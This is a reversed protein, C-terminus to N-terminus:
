VKFAFSPQTKRLCLHIRWGEGWKFEAYHCCRGSIQSYPISLFVSSYQTDPDCLRWGKKGGQGPTLCLLRHAGVWRGKMIMWHFLIFTNTTVRYKYKCCYLMDQQISIDPTLYAILLYHSKDLFNSVIMFLFGSTFFASDKATVAVIRM